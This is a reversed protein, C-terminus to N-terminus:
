CNLAVPVYLSLVLVSRVLEALQLEDFVLATVIVPPPMAVLLAGPDAVIVAVNEPTLPLAVSVTVAGVSTDSAIEGALPDAGSPAVKCIAAVPVKM